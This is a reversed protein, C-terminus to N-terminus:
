RKQILGKFFGGAENAFKRTEVGANNCNDKKKIEMTRFGQNFERACQAAKSLYEASKQQTARGLKEGSKGNGWDAAQLSGAALCLGCITALTLYKRLYKRNKFQFTNKM